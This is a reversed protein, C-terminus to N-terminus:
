SIQIWTKPTSDKSIESMVLRLRFWNRRGSNLKAIEAAGMFMTFAGAPADDIAVVMDQVISAPSSELVEIVGGTLDLPQGAEDQWVGSVQLTEGVNIQDAHTAGITFDFSGM